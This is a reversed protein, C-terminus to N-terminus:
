LAKRFAARIPRRAGPLWRPIWQSDVRVVASASPLADTVLCVL